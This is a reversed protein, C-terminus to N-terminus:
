AILEQDRTLHRSFADIATGKGHLVLLKLFIGATGCDLDLVSKADYLDIKNGLRWEVQKRFRVKQKLLKKKVSIPVLTRYFTQLFIIFPLFDEPLEFWNLRMEIEIAEMVKFCVMSSFCMKEHEDIDLERCLFYWAYSFLWQPTEETMSRADTKCGLLNRNKPMIMCTNAVSLMKDRAYIHLEGPNIPKQKICNLWVNNGQRPCVFYKYESKCHAMKVKWRREKQLLRLIISRQNMWKRHIMNIKGSKDCDM